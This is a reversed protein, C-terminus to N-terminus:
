IYTTLNWSHYSITEVEVCQVSHLVKRVYLQILTFMLSLFYNRGRCMACFAASERYIIPYSYVIPLVTCIQIIYYNVGPLGEEQHMKECRLARTFPGVWRSISSNKRRWARSVCSFCWNAVLFLCFCWNTVLFLCFCWYWHSNIPCHKMLINTNPNHSIKKKWWPAINWWFIYM